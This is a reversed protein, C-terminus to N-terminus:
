TVVGISGTLKAASTDTATAFYGKAKDRFGRKQCRTGHLGPMGKWKAMPFGYFFAARRWDAQPTNALGNVNEAKRWSTTLISSSEQLDSFNAAM